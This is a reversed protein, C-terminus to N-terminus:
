KNLITKVVLYNDKTQPMASIIKSRIDGDFALNDELEIDERLYQNYYTPKIADTNVNISDLEQIYDIISNFSNEFNAFDQEPINLYSLNSLSNLDTKEM